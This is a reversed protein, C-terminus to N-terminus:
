TNKALFIVDAAEFTVTCKWTAALWLFTAASFFVIHTKDNKYHWTSFEAPGLALKTMIALVGGPRLMAFLRRLEAGPDRLHEVVETATIFDYTNKFVAADPNFYLDYTDVSYGKERMMISLTPGPGAGFDLGSAGTSLRALLPTALRGLFNRYGIDSPDNQHLEYEAQEAEASVHFRSPVWVLSCVQCRLYERRRDRWFEESVAEGCLPCRDGLVSTSVFQPELAALM